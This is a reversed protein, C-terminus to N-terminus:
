LNKILLNAPSDQIANDLRELARCVAHWQAAGEREPLENRGIGEWATLFTTLTVGQIDASPFLGHRHQGTHDVARVVLGAQVLKEVMSAVLGAPLRTREALLSANLMLGGSEFRDVITKFLELAVRKQTSLSLNTFIDGQLALTDAREHVYAVQAGFLVIMWSVHMWILFFPLAAFSGYVVNYRSLLVMINIYGQQLLQFASGAVLSAILASGFGVRTNPIVLYILLFLIWMLAFPLAKIALLILPSVTHLFHLRDTMVMIRAAIYVTLSSSLLVFVPGIVMISLYDTFKRIFSRSSVNWITNFSSEILSLVSVATWIMLLVGLGAMIGGKADELWVLAFGIAKEVVAQQGAMHQYLMTELRKDLGFGKGIGFLLALVPVISLLTSYTLAAAQVACKGRLFGRLSFLAIRVMRAFLAGSTLIRSSRWPWVGSDFFRRLRSLCAHIGPM